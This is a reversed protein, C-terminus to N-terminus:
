NINRISIFMLGFIFSIVKTLPLFFSCELERRVERSSFDFKKLYETLNHTLWGEGIIPPRSHITM